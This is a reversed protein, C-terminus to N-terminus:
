EKTETKDIFHFDKRKTVGPLYRGMAVKYFIAANKKDRFFGPLHAEIIIYLDAPVQAKYALMGDKSMGSPKYLNEFERKCMDKYIAADRPYERAWANFVTMIFDETAQGKILINPTKQDPM